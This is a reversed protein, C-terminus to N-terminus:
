AFQPLILLLFARKTGNFVSQKVHFLTKSCFFPCSAACVSWGCAALRRRSFLFGFFCPRCFSHFPPHLLAVATVTTTYCDLLCLFIIRSTERSVIARWAIKACFIIKFLYKIKYQCSYLCFPIILTSIKNIKENIQRVKQEAWILFRGYKLFFLHQFTNAFSILRESAFAPANSWNHWAFKGRTARACTRM